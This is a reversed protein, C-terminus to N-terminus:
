AEETLLSLTMEGYKKPNAIGAELLRNGELIPDIRKTLWDKDTGSKTVVEDLAILIKYVSHNSFPRHDRKARRATNPLLGPVDLVSHNWLKACHAIRNRLYVFSRVQSPLKAQSVGLSEALDDLVGSKKSASILRSITGFSFAEVAVWIPMRDYAQPLYRGDAKIEDRYHSVFTEKSQALNALPYDQVRKAKDKPSQSLGQGTVFGGIPSVRLAYHYAFRTRLLVELPHLVEDCVLVLSQEAEYLRQITEFSAGRIFTNDGRAPDRQWYRFYGSLRYYNVRSLFTSAM